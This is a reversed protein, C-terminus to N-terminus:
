RHPRGPRRAGPRLRRLGRAHPPRPRHDLSCLSDQSRRGPRAALVLPSREGSPRVASRPRAQPRRRRDDLRIAADQRARLRRRGRGPRPTRSLLRERHHVALLRRRDQARGHRRPLRGVAAAPVVLRRQDAAELDGGKHLAGDRWLDRGEGDNDTLAMVLREGLIPRLAKGPAALSRLQMTGGAALVKFPMPAGSHFVDWAAGVIAVDTEGEVFLTPRLDADARALLRKAEALEHETTALKARTEVLQSKIAPFYSRDEIRALDFTGDAHCRDFADLVLRRTRYESFERSERNKLVRFTESPWDEGMVDQPDLIYRLEDRTLGYLYAYYADLEAHLGARRDADWPFPEGDHGLDQAFSQMDWATYTLELVRSVIFALDAPSYASPPFVPLQNLLGFTLHTGGVKQRAVFDFVLTSWNALLASITRPMAADSMFLPLTHGVAALPLASAIVTRVKEIGTIDRWGMLCRHRWGKAVLQATVEREEVWYRPLVGFAPDAKEDATALRSGAAGEDDDGGGEGEWAERSGRGTGGAPSPRPSPTGDYTAWRHDFHHIMKAEYLPLWRSGDPLTWTRDAALTGGAGRLQERNRFLGSNSTMNFLGQSFRIGWPNGDDGKAEDILM